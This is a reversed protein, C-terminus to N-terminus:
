EPSTADAKKWFEKRVAESDRWLKQTYAVLQDFQRKHRLATEDSSAKAALVQEADRFDLGLAPLFHLTDVPGPGLGPVEIFGKKLHPGLSVFRRLELNRAMQEELRGPAAGSRGSKDQTPGDWVPSKSSDPIFKRPYAMAGLEADGFDFLLGWLNRDIPEA